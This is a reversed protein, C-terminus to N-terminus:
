VHRRERLKPFAVQEFYQYSRNIELFSAAITNVMKLAATLLIQRQVAGGHYVLPWLDKPKRGCWDSAGFM